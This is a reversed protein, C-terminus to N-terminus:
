AIAQGDGVEKQKDKERQLEAYRRAYEECAMIHWCKIKPDRFSCNYRMPEPKGQEKARARRIFYTKSDEIHDCIWGKENLTVLCKADGGMKFYILPRDPNVIDMEIHRQIRRIKAARDREFKSMKVPEAQEMASM